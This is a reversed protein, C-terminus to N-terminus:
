VNELGGDCKFKCVSVCMCERIKQGTGVAPGFCCRQNQDSSLDSAGWAENMVTADTQLEPGCLSRRNQLNQMKLQGLPLFAIISAGILADASFVSHAM